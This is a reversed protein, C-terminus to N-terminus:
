VLGKLCKKVLLMNKQTSMVTTLQNKKHNCIIYQGGSGDRYIIGKHSIWIHYGIGLKPLITKFKFYFPRKIQKKTMEKIWEQPVVQVNNYKGEYMLLQGIKHFDEFRLYLGTAGACYNGINNWKYEKIDLLKFIKEAIYDALSIGFNEQFFVSFLYPEINSYTFHKNTKYTIPTSFLEDFLDKQNHGISKVHKENFLMKNYGTSHTLLTKITWEQVQSPINGDYIAALTSYVETDLSLPKNTYKCKKNEAIAIGCAFATLLKSCSRLEHLGLDNILRKLIIGEKEIIVSDIQVNLKKARELIKDIM